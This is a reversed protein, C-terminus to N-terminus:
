ESYERVLAVVLDRTADPELAVRRVRAIADRYVDVETGRELYLAGTLSEVFVVPRETLKTSPHPPFEFMVCPSTVAAIPSGVTYPVVRISVNPQESLTLLHRLQDAMIARNGTHQRLIADSILAEYEFGSDELREQRFVALALSKEVEDHTWEPHGAWVVQRRYETTQLLGPILASQVSTARSASQEMNLFYDFGLKMEDIYSRWWKGGAKQAKRTEDALMLLFRREDDSVQLKDCIANIVMSPVNHKLGDELRGYTQPSAEIIKSVAYKSLGARKRFKELQRGLARSAHTSGSM